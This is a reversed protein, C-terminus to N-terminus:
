STNLQDTFSPPKRRVKGLGKVTASSSELVSGNTQFPGGYISVVNTHSELYETLVMCDDNPGDDVPTIDVIDDVCM